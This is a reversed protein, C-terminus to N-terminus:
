RAAGSPPAGRPSASGTEGDQATSRGDETLVVDIPQGVRLADPRDPLAEILFVLKAREERSYIVPPTYEATGAIFSIRATIDAACGDCNVKVQEGYSLRSLVAQPVYFRVKLNGPPLLAVIPRGAPVMEGPRFYVQQVTGTVPSALKRRALRTQASNLRAQATRLAAEADEVAKETGSATKLLKQARDYAQEANKVAAESMMVDARQLDSDVTFLPAGEEVKDGERKNLVEVRGADDPGVFILNAEMWGQFTPPGQENCAALGLALVLAIAHPVAQGEGRGAQPSLAPSPANGRTQAQPSLGEGRGGGYGTSSPRSPGSPLCSSPAPAGRWIRVSKTGGMIRLMATM